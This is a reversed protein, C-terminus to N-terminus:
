RLVLTHKQRMVMCRARTRRRRILQSIGSSNIEAAAIAMTTICTWDAATERFAGTSRGGVGVGDIVGRGVAVCSGVAVGRGIVAFASLAGVTVDGSGVGAGVIM